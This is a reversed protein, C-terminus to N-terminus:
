PLIESPDLPPPTSVSTPTPTVKPTPTVLPPLTIQPTPVPTLTATPTPTATPEVLNNSSKSTSDSCSTLLGITLTMCLFKSIKIKLM